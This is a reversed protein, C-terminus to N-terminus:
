ELTALVCVSLFRLTYRRWSIMMDICYVCVQFPLSKNEVCGVVMSRNAYRPPNVARSATRPGVYRMSKAAAVGDTATAYQALRLVALM